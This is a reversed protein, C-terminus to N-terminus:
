FVDKNRVLKEKIGALAEEKQDKTENIQYQNEKSNRTNLSKMEKKYDNICYNIDKWGTKIAMRLLEKKVNRDDKAFKNLDEQNIRMASQAAYGNKTVLVEIWEKYLEYLESDKETIAKLATNIERQKASIKPLNEVPVLTKMKKVEPQRSTDNEKYERVIRDLKNEDIYYYFKKSNNPFPLMVLVQCDILNEEIEKQKGEGLVTCQYIFDRSCAFYKDKYLKNDTVAKYQESLMISLYVASCLGFVKAIRVNYSFTLDHSVLYSIM